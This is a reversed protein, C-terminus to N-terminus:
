WDADAVAFSLQSNLLIPFMLCDPWNFVQTVHGGGEGRQGPVSAGETVRWNPPIKVLNLINPRAGGEWEGILSKLM